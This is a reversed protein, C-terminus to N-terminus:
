KSKFVWVLAISLGLLTLLLYVLLHEGQKYYGTVLTSLVTGKLEKPNPLDNVNIQALITGEKLIMLGPNARNITKLMTVDALVFDYSLNLQQKLSSTINTPSGTVFYFNAGISDVYKKYDAIKNWNSNTLKQLDPSLFLFSYNQDGLIQQSLEVGDEQVISFSRIPPIYGEKIIKNDTRVWKWTTDNAPFNDLTFEKIVGNKSYYLTTKFEHAPAGAPIEMKSPINSGVHYPRFDLLPQHQFAYVSISTMSAAFFGVLLWEKLCSGYSTYDFRNKFIFIALALLVVNKYFTQWNTIVLADGFCGCDSVPSFIASYLTLVTFFLM